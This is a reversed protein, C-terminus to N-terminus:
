CILRIKLLLFFTVGGGIGIAAMVLMDDTISRAGYGSPPARKRSIGLCQYLKALSEVISECNCRIWHVSTYYNRPQLADKSMNYRQEFYRLTELMDSYRTVRQFLLYDFSAPTEQTLAVMSGVSAQLTIPVLQSMALAACGFQELPRDGHLMALCFEGPSVAWHMLNIHLLEYVGCAFKLSGRFNKMQPENNIWYSLTICDRHQHLLEFFPSRERTYNSALLEFVSPNEFDISKNQSRRTHQYRMYCPATHQQQKSEDGALTAAGHLCLLPLVFTCWGRVARM